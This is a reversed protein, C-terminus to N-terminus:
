PKATTRLHATPQALPFFQRFIKSWGSTSYEPRATLWQLTAYGHLLSWFATTREEIAVKAAPHENDYYRQIANQLTQFLLQTRDEPQHENAQAPRSLMFRHSASQEVNYYGSLRFLAAHDQTFALYALGLQELYDAVPLTDDVTQLHRALEDLVKTHLEYVIEEKNTFYEYLNAPSTNVAAALSRMSLQDVGQCMVIKYAEDLIKQRNTTYRSNAPIRGNM